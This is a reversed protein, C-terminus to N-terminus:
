TALQLDISINEKTLSEVPCAIGVRIEASNPAVESFPM